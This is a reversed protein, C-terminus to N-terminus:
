QITFGGIAVMVMIGLDCVTVMVPVNCSPLTNCGMVMEWDCVVGVVPLPCWLAFAAIISLTKLGLNHTVLAKLSAATM